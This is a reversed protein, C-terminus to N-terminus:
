EARQCATVSRLGEDNGIRDDQVEKAALQLRAEALREVRPLEHLETALAGRCLDCSQGRNRDIGAGVQDDGNASALGDICGFTHADAVAEYCALPWREVEVSTTAMHEEPISKGYIFLGAVCAAVLLVGYVLLKIISFGGKKKDDGM